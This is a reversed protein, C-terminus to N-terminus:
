DQAPFDDEIDPLPPGHIAQDVTFGVPPNPTTPDIDQFPKYRKGSEVEPAELVFRDEDLSGNSM